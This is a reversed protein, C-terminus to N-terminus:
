SLRNQRLKEATRQLQAWQDAIRVKEIANEKAIKTNELQQKLIADERTKIGLERMDFYKEAEEKEKMANEHISRATQLFNDAEEKRVNTQALINASIRESDENRTKSDEAKRRAEAVDIELFVIVEERKELKKEWLALNKEFKALESRKLLIEPLLADYEVRLTHLKGALEEKKVDLATIEENIRSLTATKYAEFDQETKGWLERLGDIRTAVKVGEQIDRATQKAKQASIESKPLLKTRM